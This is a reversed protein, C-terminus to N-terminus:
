REGRGRESVGSGDAKSESSREGSQTVGSEERCLKTMFLYISCVDGPNIDFFSLFCVVWPLSPLVTCSLYIFLASMELLSPRCLPVTGAGRRSSVGPVAADVRTRLTSFLRATSTEKEGGEYCILDYGAPSAGAPTTGWAKRM